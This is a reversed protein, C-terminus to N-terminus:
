DGIRATAGERDTTKGPQSIINRHVGFDLSNLKIWNQHSKESVSGPINNIQLYFSM